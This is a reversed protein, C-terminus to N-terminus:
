SWELEAYLVKYKEGHTLAYILRTAGSAFWNEKGGMRSEYEYCLTDKLRRLRIWSQHRPMKDTLTVWLYRAKKPISLEERVSDPCLGVSLWEDVFFVVWADNKRRGFCVTKTRV